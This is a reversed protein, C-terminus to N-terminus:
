QHIEGDALLTHGQRYQVGQCQDLLGGGPYIVAVAVQRGIDGAQDFLGGVLHEVTLMVVLKGQHHPLGAAAGLAVHVGVFHDGATGVLQRALGTAALTRHVGVIV